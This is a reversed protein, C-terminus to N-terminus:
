IFQKLVQFDEKLTDMLSRNYIAAAPHYQPVIAVDGSPGVTKYVKGHAFSIPEIELDLDYKKMIYQMSFRGLTAIVNPELVEIQRDLFPAYLEIESPTPDRNEPPRDKVINTIYVSERPLNISLLLEDLLKGASGCFPRGTQAENKGPAEGIFMINADHNGEGVVPFYGNETRYQYLPSEKLAIIENKISKMAEYKASM